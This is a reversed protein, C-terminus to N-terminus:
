TSCRRSCASSCCRRASTRSTRSSSSRWGWALLLPGLDRPSPVFWRGIRIRGQTLLERKDALYAAFFAVLLVKAIESPEFSLPGLGVWLRGGGRSQGIVPVLPLLMFMIGLLLAIYRYRAFVRVDRVVVLTVVFVAIGIGVWVAQIRAQSAYDGGAGGLRAIVVFGIGNLM